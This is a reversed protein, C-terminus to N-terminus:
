LGVSCVSAVVVTEDHVLENPVVALADADAFVLKATMVVAVVVVVLSGALLTNPGVGIAM